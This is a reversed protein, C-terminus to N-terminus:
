YSFQRGAAPYTTRRNRTSRGTDSAAAAAPLWPVPVSLLPLFSGSPITIKTKEHHSGGLLLIKYFMYFCNLLFITKQLDDLKPAERVQTLRNFFCTSFPLM